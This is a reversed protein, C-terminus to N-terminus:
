AVEKYGKRTLYAHVTRYGDVGDHSHYAESITNKIESKYQHYGAKRNKLYSYYANPYINFKRLLWRM